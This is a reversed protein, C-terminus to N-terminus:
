FTDATQFVVKFLFDFFVLNQKEPQSVKALNRVYKLSLFDEKSVSQFLGLKLELM